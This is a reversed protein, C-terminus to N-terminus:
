KGDCHERFARAEALLRRLHDRGLSEYAADLLEYSTERHEPYAWVDKGLKLAAGPFGDALLKMAAAALKKVETKTAKWDWATTPDKGPLKRYLRKPVVIGMRDRTEAVPERWASGGYEDLYEDGREPRDAGWFGGLASRIADLRDLKREYDAAEDPDDEIMELYDRESLEIAERLAEFLDDGNIGFEFSDRSWYHCVVARGDAPDDFYYGWHLGDSDGSMLTIFEPPDDYYRAEWIPHSRHRTPRKGDAARFPYELRVGVVDALHKASVGTLFDRFRFFDPPFDFGYVDRIREQPTPV